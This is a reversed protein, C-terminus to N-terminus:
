RETQKRRVGVPKRATKGKYNGRHTQRRGNTDRSLSVPTHTPAHAQEVPKHPSSSEDMQMRATASRRHASRQELREKATRALDEYTLHLRQLETETMDEAGLLRNDASKIARILEDLKLRVAAADRNQSHQILFVM